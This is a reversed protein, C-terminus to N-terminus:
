RRGDAMHWGALSFPLQWLVERDKQHDIPLVQLTVVPM